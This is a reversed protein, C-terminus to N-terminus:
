CYCFCYNTHKYTTSDLPNLIEVVGVDYAAPLSHINVCMTDNVTIIDNNYRTYACLTYDLHPAIFPTTFTYIVTDGVSLSDAFIENVPQGNNIKYSIPVNYVTNAGVNAIKVKVIQTTGTTTPSTPTIIETLAVNNSVQYVSIKIDDIAFGDFNTSDNSLFGIRL